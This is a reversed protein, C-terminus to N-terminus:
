AVFYKHTCDTRDEMDDNVGIAALHGYGVFCTFVQIAINPRDDLAAIAVKIADISDAIM